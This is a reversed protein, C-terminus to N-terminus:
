RVVDFTDCPFTISLDHDGEKIAACAQGVLEIRSPTVVRYGNAADTAVLPLRVGDLTVTGRSENGAVIQGNLEVECSRVGAILSQFAEVLGTPRLGDYLAGGGARAIEQLHTHLAVDDPSGLDITSVVIGWEEFIRRSEAVVDFQEALAPTLAQGDRMVTTSPQCTVPSLEDYQPCECSDPAGDTALIILKPGGADVAHLASATQALSERTPTDLGIDHCAMASFLEAANGLAFDVQTLEPCMEPPNLTGSTYLSMGFRVRGDLATVIGTEPRFLVTRVVNWRWTAYKQDESDLPAGEETPCGWPVYAGSAVDEEVREAFGLTGNMSLSRDILLAVSPIVVEYEVRLDVCGPAGSAGPAPDGTQGGPYDIV